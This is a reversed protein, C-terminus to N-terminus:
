KPIINENTWKENYGRGDSKGSESMHILLRRVHRIQIVISTRESPSFHHCDIIVSIPFHFTIQVDFIFQYTLMKIRGLMCIYVPYICTRMDHISNFIKPFRFWSQDKLYLLNWYFLYTVLIFFYYTGVETCLQFYIDTKNGTKRNIKKM